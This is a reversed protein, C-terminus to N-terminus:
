KKALFLQAEYQENTDIEVWGYICMEARNNSLLSQVTNAIFDYDFSPQVFFFGEGRFQHRICIEGIVINPLTYVFVSPSPITDITEQYENDTHLSSSTNAIIVSINEPAISSYDEDKLLLETALFGLKCLSSMKYFKSYETSLHKYLSKAFPAFHEETSEFVINNNVTVVNNKISVSKTAQLDSMNLSYHLLM